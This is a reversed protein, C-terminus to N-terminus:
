ATVGISILHKMYPVRIMNQFRKAADPNSDLEARSKVQCCFRVVEAAGDPSLTEYEGRETLWNRFREDNCWMGALKALEGGKPKAEPEPQPEPEAGIRLAALAMPTGPAGFLAFAAQAHRPEVDVSLRLTGDAMTRVGVSSAEIASM